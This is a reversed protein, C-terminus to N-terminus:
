AVKVEFEWCIIEACIRRARTFCHSRFNQSHIFIVTSKFIKSLDSGSYTTVFQIFDGSIILAARISM